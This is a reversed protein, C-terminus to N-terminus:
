PVIISAETVRINKLYLKNIDSKFVRDYGNSGVYKLVEYLKGKCAGYYRPIFRLQVVGLKTRGFYLEAQLHDLNIQDPKPWDVEKLTNKKYAVGDKWYRTFKANKDYAVGLKVQGKCTVFQYKIKLNEFDFGNKSGKFIVNSRDISLMQSRVRSKQAYTQHIFGLFFIFLITIKISKM